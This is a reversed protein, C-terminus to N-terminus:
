FYSCSLAVERFLNSSPTPYFPSAVPMLKRKAGSVANVTLLQSGPSRGIKKHHLIGVSCTTTKPFGGYIIMWIYIYVYIYIQCNPINWSNNIFVVFEWSFNMKTYRHLSEDPGSHNSMNAVYSTGSPATGAAHFRRTSPCSLACLIVTRQFYLIGVEFWVCPNIRFSSFFLFWRESLIQQLYLPWSDLCCFRVNRSLYTSM